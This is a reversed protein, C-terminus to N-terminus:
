INCFFNSVVIGRHFSFFSGCSFWNHSSRVKPLYFYFSFDLNRVLNFGFYSYVVDLCPSLFELGQTNLFFLQERVNFTFVLDCLSCLQSMFLQCLYHSITHGRPLSAEFRKVFEQLSSPYM